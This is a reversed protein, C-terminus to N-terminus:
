SMWDDLWFPGHLKSIILFTDFHSTSMNKTTNPAWSLTSVGILSQWEWAFKCPCWHYTNPYFNFIKIINFSFHGKDECWGNLQVKPCMIIQLSNEAYIYNSVHVIYICDNRKTELHIHNALLRKPPIFNVTWTRKVSQPTHLHMISTFDVHITVHCGVSWTEHDSPNNEFVV